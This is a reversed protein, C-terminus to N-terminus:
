GSPCSGLQGAKETVQCGACLAVGFAKGARSALPPRHQNVLSQVGIIQLVPIAASGGWCSVLPTDITGPEESIDSGTVGFIFAGFFDGM